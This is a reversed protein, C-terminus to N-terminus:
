AREPASAGRAQKMRFSIPTAVTGKAFVPLSQRAIQM